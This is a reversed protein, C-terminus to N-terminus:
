RVHEARFDALMELVRSLAEANVLKGMISDRVATADAFFQSRVAQTIASARVGQRELLGGLLRDDMDHNIAEFRAQLKAGATRVARQQEIPLADFVRNAVLMCGQIYALHMPFLNPAQTSWQFALAASPVAVFGDIRGEDYARSAEVIPLPVPHFGLAQLQATLTDDGQWVWLRMRKLEAWGRAPTRTFFVESGVGSEFLNTFGHQQFEADFTPKLRSVVYTAEERAQVLGLVRLVRMTPALHYCQVAMAAGDLQGREIRAIVEAEDGAVAGLYWKV